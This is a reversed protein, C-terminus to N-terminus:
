RPHCGHDVERPGDVDENSGQSPDRSLCRHYVAFSTPGSGKVINLCCVIILDLQGALPEEFGKNKTIVVETGGLKMADDQLFNFSLKAFLSINWGEERRFAFLCRSERM